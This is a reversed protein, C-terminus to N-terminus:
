EADDDGALERISVDTGQREPGDFSGRFMADGLNAPAIPEAEDAPSGSNQTPPPTADPPVDTSPGEPAQDPKEM